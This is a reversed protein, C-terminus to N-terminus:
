TEFNEKGLILICDSGINKNPEKATKIPAASGRGAMSM